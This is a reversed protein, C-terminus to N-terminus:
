TTRSALYASEAFGVANNIGHLLMVLPLSGTHYRVAGLYLGILAITAVGYLDYQVHPAAWLASSVVVAAAPGWRSDAIGRFLFGRFLTEEGMPAAVVVALFLFFHWGLRYLEVMVPPALPRGLLYTTLDSAAMLALMGGVAVVSQRAGPVFLALYERVRIRRARLLLVVLGVAVLASAVAAVSIVLGDVSNASPPHVTPELRPMVQEMALAVVAQAASIALVLLVTWGISAWPGFPRRAPATGAGTSAVVDAGSAIPNDQLGAAPLDDGPLDRM